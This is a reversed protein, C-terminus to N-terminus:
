ATEVGEPSVARLALTLSITTATYDALAKIYLSYQGDKVAAPLDTRQLRPFGDRVQYIVRSHIVYGTRNYRNNHMAHYGAALLRSELDSRMAVSDVVANQVVKVADALSEGHAPGAEDASLHILYIIPLTGIDLQDLSSIGISISSPSTTKVEASWTDERFDQSAGGPGAWCQLARNWGVTDALRRLVWLEGWLGLQKQPGLGSKGVALFRQWTRIRAATESIALDADHASLYTELDACVQDFLESGESDILNIALWRGPGFDDESWAFTMGESDQLEGLSAEQESTIRIALSCRGDPEAGIAVAISAPLLVRRALSEGKEKAQARLEFLAQPFESM